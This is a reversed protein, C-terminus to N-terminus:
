RARWVGLVFGEHVESRVLDTGTEADLTRAMIEHVTRGGLQHDASTGTWHCAVLDGGPGLASRVAGVLVALESAGFYYGVESFVVLDLPETTCPGQQVSGVDIQLGDRRGCRLRARAVASPSVDSAFLADCRPQLRATLVGVSCAPEYAIRYRHPEPRLAGLVTEYRDLEYSSTAFSWPDGAAAYREEFAAPSWPAHDHM